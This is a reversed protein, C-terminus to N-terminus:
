DSRGCLPCESPMIEHFQIELADLEQRAIGLSEENGTIVRVLDNLKDMEQRDRDLGQRLELLGVVAVEAGKVPSIEALDQDIIEIKRVLSDLADIEQKDVTMMANLGFLDVVREEANLVISLDVIDCDIIEIKKSLLTLADIEKGEEYIAAKLGTMKEVQKESGLVASLSVIDSEISEIEQATEELWYIDDALVQIETERKELELVKEDAEDLWDFASLEETLEKVDTEIGALEAKEKSLVSKINTETRHIIDLDAIQNLFRGVNGSTQSLLFASDMQAQFNVSGLNLLDSVVKPVSGGRDIAYEQDDIYYINKNTGKLRGAWQGSDLLIAVETDGGWHSRFEDGKPENKFLWKLARFVASKGGDSDGILANVFEHLQLRTDKHSQFNKIIIEQISPTM